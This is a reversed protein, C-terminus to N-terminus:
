GDNGSPPLGEIGRGLDEGLRRGDIVLPKIDQLVFIMRTWSDPSPNRWSHMSARQVAVDGRRLLTRSGDDLLMEIEGEVVIGFDLSQTRHMMCEYLPGFDVMRCVVGGKAALGMGGGGVMEDHFAVDADGNLDAPFRNTYIQNFGMGGGEFSKWSAARASHVVAQGSPNHGTLFTTTGPLDRSLQSTVPPRSDSPNPASAADSKSAM